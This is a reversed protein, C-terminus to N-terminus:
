HGKSTRCFVGSCSIIERMIMVTLIGLLSFHRVSHSPFLLSMFGFVLRLHAEHHRKSHGSVPGDGQITSGKPAATWWWSMKMQLVVVAVCGPYHQSWVWPKSRTERLITESISGPSTQLWAPTRISVWWDNCVEDDKAYQDTKYTVRQKATELQEEIKWLARISVFHTAIATCEETRHKIPKRLM